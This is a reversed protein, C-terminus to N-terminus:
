VGGFVDITNGPALDIIAKKWDPKRRARQGLGKTKGKVRVTRVKVVKVDFVQEVARRVEIKNVGLPVAFAVQNLEDRQGVVVQGAFDVTRFVCM